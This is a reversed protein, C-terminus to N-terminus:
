SYAFGGARLKRKRGDVSEPNKSHRTSAKPPHIGNGLKELSDGSFSRHQFFMHM